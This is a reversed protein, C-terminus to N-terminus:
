RTRITSKTQIPVISIVDSRRKLAHATRSSISSFIFSCYLHFQIDFIYRKDLQACSVFKEPRWHSIPPQPAIPAGERLYHCHRVKEPEYDIEKLIMESTEQARTMTSVIIKDWEINLEHLRQGTYKAQLKGLETLHHDRDHKGDDLYQGHRILVIHRTAKVRMKELENNYRNQEQPTDNKIPRVCSKPERFDWNSDWFAGESVPTNYVPWSNQALNEPERLRQYYYASLGASTGVVISSIIRLKNWAAM